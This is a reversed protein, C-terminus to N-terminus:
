HSRLFTRLRKKLKAVDATECEWILLVRWAKARLALCNQRDRAVTQRFKSIWLARNRRPMTTRDCGRHRHWFCGHVFIIKHQVQLVVDPRGPLDYQNILCRRYGLQRVIRCVLREPATAQQRVKAM